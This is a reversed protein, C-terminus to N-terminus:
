CGCLPIWSRFSIIFNQDWFLSALLESKDCKTTKIPWRTKFDKREALVTDLMMTRIRLQSVCASLSLNLEPTMFRCRWYSGKAIVFVDLHIHIFFIYLHMSTIKIMAVLSEKCEGATFIDLRHM